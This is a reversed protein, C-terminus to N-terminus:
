LAPSLSERENFGLTKQFDLIPNPPQAVPESMRRTFTATFYAIRLAFQGV